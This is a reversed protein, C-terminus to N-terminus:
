PNETSCMGVRVVSEYSVLGLTLYNEKKHKCIKLSTQDKNFLGTEPELCACPLSVEMEVPSALGVGNQKCLLGLFKWMVSVSQKQDVSSSYDALAEEAM